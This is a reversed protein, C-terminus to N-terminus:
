WVSTTAGLIGHRADAPLADSLGAVDEPFEQLFRPATGFSFIAAPDRFEPPLAFNGM